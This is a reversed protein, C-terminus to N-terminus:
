LQSRRRNGSERIGQNGSERIGEAMERARQAADGVYDAADLLARVREPPLYAAVQPDASLRDPLPNAGGGRVTEWAAMSHSRIVEHMVERDAGTKVLEMLLRESAAFTGYTELTRAVAEEDVHLDRVLRTARSLLEDATLFAGPLILRRNASDDLTRELLSHAANEWAVHPLAALYRALSDINEANVPNRKFPMASSGVQRQGFPESWEGLPPSQLLRLDFAFKYLSGALGALANLVLWDQKRPYTQTAVPFAPLDLAAMVRAELDRAAAASGLLQVYSASTGVAGKLGKGRIESRARRLEQHDILLDQGYQALRYGITTPEAPQLHTFAMAPTEAWRDIQDALHQLLGALRDLVLELAARLRLADANDEIDTSTAGLHLIPGGVPCGEAYARLEAMLDHRIEAEIQHAREINVEDVRLRLDAVQEATVLGLAHQAEALALWIRRWLRRKHAESWLERMGEGGYRWTFPSLYTEHDFSITETM